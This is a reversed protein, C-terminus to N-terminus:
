LKSTQTESVPIFYPLKGRRACWGTPHPWALISRRLISGCTIEGARASSATHVDGHRGRMHAACMVDYTSIHTEARTSRQVARTRVGRSEGQWAARNLLRVLLSGQATLAPARCLMPAAPKSVDAVTTGPAKTRGCIATRSINVPGGSARQSVAPSTNAQISRRSSSV